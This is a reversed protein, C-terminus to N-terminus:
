RLMDSVIENATTTGSTAATGTVTVALNTNALETGTSQASTVRVTGHQGHCEFAQTNTGTETASFDAIWNVGSGTVIVACTGALGFNFTITKANADASNVGYAYVHFTQGINLHSAKVTYAFLTDPGTTTTAKPAPLVAVVGGISRNLTVIGDNFFGLINGPDYPGPFLPLTAAHNSLSVMLAALGSVAALIKKM